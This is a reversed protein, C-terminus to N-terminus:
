TPNDRWKISCGISAVQKEPGQGTEAVQEMALYLDRRV